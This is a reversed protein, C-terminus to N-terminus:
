AISSSRSALLPNLSNNAELVRFTSYTPPDKYGKIEGLSNLWSPPCGHKDFWSNVVRKTYADISSFIGPFIQFPLKNNLRLKIWFCRPCFDPMAVEGLAKASIRIQTTM